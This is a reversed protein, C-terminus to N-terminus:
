TGEILEGLLKVLGGIETTEKSDLGDGKTPDNNPHAARSLAEGLGRLGNTADTLANSAALEMREVQTEEEETLTGGHYLRDQLEVNLWPKRIQGILSNLSLTETM